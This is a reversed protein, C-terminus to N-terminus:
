KQINLLNGNKLFSRDNYANYISMEKRAALMEKAIDQSQENIMQWIAHESITIQSLLEKLKEVTAPQCENIVFKAQLPVISDMIIQKQAILETVSNTKEETIAQLHEISLRQFNGYHKILALGNDDQYQV